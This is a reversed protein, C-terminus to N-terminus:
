EYAYGAVTNRLESLLDSPFNLIGADTISTSEYAGRRAYLFAAQRATVRRIPEEVQFVEVATTAVHAAATTGNVGRRVTATNATTDTATVELYEDEIKLLSGRSIRPTFGWGDAGDVDAVTLTTAVATLPTDQVTDVSDWANAWDRHYGWFGGITALVPDDDNCFRYWNNGSSMLRISHFPRDPTERWAEVTTGVTLTTTGAVVSSLELLPRGIHFLRLRSDVREPRIWWDRTEFYPAFFPRRSQFLRDIRRSVVRVKDALKADDVTGQAKLENKADALTAYWITM